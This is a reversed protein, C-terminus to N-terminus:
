KNVTQTLIASSSSLFSGFGDYIVTISHSGIALNSVALLAKGASLTGTGLTTTGAKFTVMGAPTGSSSTVAATFKVPKGYTSPNLSSTVTTSTSSYKVVFGHFAGRADAYFGTVNASDNIGFAVTGPFISTGATGAGPAEFSTITGNAARVFGHSVGKSDSYFGTVDGTVNIRGSITGQIMGMGTAAGPAEFTTIAGNAARVFGQGALFVVHKVPKTDSYSGTVEGSDNISVGVTGEQSGVGGGPANFTTITGDAARVFGHYVGSADRYTGAIVGSDSISAPLTGQDISTGGGPANFTTITGDSARVFGYFVGNSDTYVGTIDGSSNISTPSTGRHGATGAGKVNFETITGDVARIFGHYANNKDAYMGAIDGAANIGLPLTGELMGTGAGPANFTTFTQAPSSIAALASVACLLLLGKWLDLKLM